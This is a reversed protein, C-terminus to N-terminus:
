CEARGFAACLLLSSSPAGALQEVAPNDRWATSAMSPPKLKWAPHAKGLHKLM